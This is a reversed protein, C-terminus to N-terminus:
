VDLSMQYQNTFGFVRQDCNHAYVWLFFVYMIPKFASQHIGRQTTSSMKTKITSIISMFQM